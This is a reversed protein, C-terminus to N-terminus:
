HPDGSAEDRRVRAKARLTQTLASSWEAFRRARLDSEVVAKVEGFLLPRSPTIREVRVVSYGHINLLVGSIEGADMSLVPKIWEEANAADLARESVQLAGGGEKDPARAREQLAPNALMRERAAQAANRAEDWVARPSGPEVPILLERTYVIKSTRYRTRESEYYQLIEDQSVNIDAKGAQMLRAIMQGRRLEELLRARTAPAGLETYTQPERAYTKRTSDYTQRVWNEDARLGRRRAERYLLEEDILNDIALRRVARWKEPSVDHYGGIPLLRDMERLVSGQSIAVGDVWAVSKEDEPHPAPEAAAASGLWVVAMVAAV